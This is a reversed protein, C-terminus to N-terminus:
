QVPSEAPPLLVGIPLKPYSPDIADWTMPHAAGGSNRGLAHFVAGTDLAWVPSSIPVVLAVAQRGIEVISVEASATQACRDREARSSSHSLLALRPMVGRASACAAVSASPQLDVKNEVTGIGDVAQAFAAGLDSDAFLPVGPSAAAAPLSAVLLAILVIAIPTVSTERLCGPLFSKRQIYMEIEPQPM